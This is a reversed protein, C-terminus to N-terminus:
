HSSKEIANIIATQLDVTGFSKIHYFFIRQQRVRSEFEPTNTDACLIIPLREDMGKVISLFACDDGFLLVDMVLVDVRQGQLVLLTESLTASRLVTFGVDNLFPSLESALAGGSEAILIHPKTGTM